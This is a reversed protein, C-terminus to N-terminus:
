SDDSSGFRMAVFDIAQAPPEPIALGLVRLDADPLNPRDHMVEPALGAAAPGDRGRAIARAWEVGSGMTRSAHMSCRNGVLERAYQCPHFRSRARIPLLNWPRNSATRRAM